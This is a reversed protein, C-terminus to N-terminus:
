VPAAAETPKFDARRPGIVVLLQDGEYGLVEHVVERHVSLEQPLDRLPNAFYFRDADSGSLVVWHAYAEPDGFKSTDTLVLGVHGADLIEELDKATVDRRDEPIGAKRCKERLDQWLFEMFPLDIDPLRKLIRRRFAINDTNGVIRVDHGRRWAALALGYRSTAGVELLTSERWITVEHAQTFPTAPDYHALAMLLCSPGCTFDLTQAYFPIPLKPVSQSADGPVFPKRGEPRSASPGTLAQPLPPM